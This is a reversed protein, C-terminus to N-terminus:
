TGAKLNKVTECPSVRGSSEWDNRKVATRETPKAPKM